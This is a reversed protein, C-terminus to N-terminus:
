FAYNAPGAASAAAPLRMAAAVSAQVRGALVTYGLATPHATDSWYTPYSAQSTSLGLVPDTTFDTVIDAWGEAVANSLLNANLTVRDAKGQTTKSANFILTNVVIKLDAGKTTAAAKRAQCYAKIAAYITAPSSVDLDNTGIQVVLVTRPGAPIAADTLSARAALDAVKDGPNGFDFVPYSRALASALYDPYASGTSAGTGYTISDGDSVVRVAEFTAAAEAFMAARQPATPVGAYVAVRAITGTLFFNDIYGGIRWGSARQWSSVSGTRTGATQGNVYFTETGTDTATQTFTYIFTMMQRYIVPRASGSGGAIAFISGGASLHVWVRGTTDKAKCIVVGNANATFVGAITYSQGKLAELAPPQGAIMATTTGAFSIGPSAGYAAVSLSPRNADVGQYWHCGNGSRDDWRRVLAGSATAPQTATEDVWLGPSPGDTSWYGAPATWAWASPVTGTTPTPLYKTMWWATLNAEDTPSLDASVALVAAVHISQWYGSSTSDSNAIRYKRTACTPNAVQFKAVQWIEIPAMPYQSSADPETPVGNVAVAGTGTLDRATSNAGTFRMTRNAADSSGLVPALDAWTASPSRFVAYVQTVVGANATELYQQLSNTFALYPHSNNQADGLQYTPQHTGTAVGLNGLTYPSPWSGVATGASVPTLQDAEVYLALNPLTSPDFSM